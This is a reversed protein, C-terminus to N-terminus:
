YKNKNNLIVVANEKFSYLTNNFCTPSKTRIILAKYLLGKKAKVFERRKSRLRKVTVLIISGLKAYRKQFGGYIGICQVKRAGSNDAVNLYTGVQIM